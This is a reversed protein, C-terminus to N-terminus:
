KMGVIKRGKMELILNMSEMNHQTTNIM